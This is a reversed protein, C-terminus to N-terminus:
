GSAAGVATWIGLGLLIAGSIKRVIGLPVVRTIRNGLAVGFGSVLVFAVAAGVLVSIPDSSRASLDAVVVQTLDGIEALAVIGFTIAAIRLGSPSRPAADLQSEESAALSAAADEAGKESGLLLVGAGALFLAAVVSEVIRHPALDLLRGAAVAVAAQLVLGSAAGIWVPWPRYRSGLVICSVFTKDPLEAPIVVAFTTAALAINM